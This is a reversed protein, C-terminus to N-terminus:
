GQEPWLLGAAERATRESAFVDMLERWEKQLRILGRFPNIEPVAMTRALHITRMCEAAGRGDGTALCDVALMQSSRFISEDLDPGLFEGPYPSLEEVSVPRMGPLEEQSELKRKEFVFRFVDERVREWAPSTKPPADHKISLENDLFTEYGFMRANILFDIDEGRTISPDFPVRCFLNRHLVLNGGFAFPTAKLRPKRGIVDAFARNMCGIKNWYTMWPEVDRNLLYSGDPNLYYGAVFLARRGDVKRGIFELAKDMFLSDEFIEDDDILVAVESGLLHPLFVCLNRVHSYGELRLLSALGGRGRSELYGHMRALHSASFLRTEVIRATGELIGAIKQEVAERIDPAASVGLVVLNFDKNQLVALSELLRGLTGQEDLPTPHDYICDTGLRCEGKKRGWYSPVVMTVKM